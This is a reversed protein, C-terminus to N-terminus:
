EIGIKRSFLHYTQSLLMSVVPSFGLSYIVGFATAITLLPYFLLPSNLWRIIDDFAFFVLIFYVYWPIHTKKQMSQYTRIVEELMRESDEQFRDKVSNLEQESLLRAYQISYSHFGGSM